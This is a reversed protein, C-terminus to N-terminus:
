RNAPGAPPRISLWPRDARAEFGPIAFSAPRPPLAAGASRGVVRFPGPHSCGDTSLELTVSKATADGPRSTAPRASLGAPLDEATIEIPDSFGDKRDITVKVSATEGPTSDFRDAALSLAFDPETGLVRLLYAFRPGGRRNLDRIVVRYDGDAPATFSLVPDRSTSGPGRGQRADDSEALVNGSPDVM